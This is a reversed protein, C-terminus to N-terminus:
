AFMRGDVQCVVGEGGLQVPNNEFYLRCMVRPFSHVMMMTPKSLGTLQFVLKERTGVTWLYVAFIVFNRVGRCDEFM